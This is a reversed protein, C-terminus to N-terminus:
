EEIDPGYIDLGIPISRSGLLYLSEASICEAENWEKMLLGCFLDVKYKSTLAAWVDLDPTLSQFIERIQHDLNGPECSETKLSWSGTLAIIRSPLRPEGKRISRTPEKGLMRTILDPDLDDGFFRLSAESRNLAAM